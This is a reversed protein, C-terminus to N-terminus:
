GFANPAGACPQPDHWLTRAGSTVTTDIIARSLNEDDLYLKAAGGRKGLKFTYKGDEGKPIYIYGVWNASTAKPACDSNMSGFTPGSQSYGALEDSQLVCVLRTLLKRCPARYSAEEHPM